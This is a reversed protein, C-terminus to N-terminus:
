MLQAQVHINIDVHHGKLHLLLYLLTFLTVCHKHKTGQTLMYQLYKSEKNTVRMCETQLIKAWM